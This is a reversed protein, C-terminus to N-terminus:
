EERNSAKTGESAAEYVTSVKWGDWMEEIKQCVKFFKRATKTQDM